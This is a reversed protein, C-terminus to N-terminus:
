VSVRGMVSDQEIRRMPRRFHIWYGLADTAHTHAPNSKDLNKGTKDWRAAGIDGKLLECEEDDVVLHIRGSLDLIAVCVANIRDVVPPNSDRIRLRFKVQPMTAALAQSLEDYLSAATGAWESRATADGYIWLEPWKWGGSAAVWDRFVNVMRRVSMRPEHFVRKVYFLDQTEDYQGVMSHMGPNINFDMTWELPKHPNLTVKGVNRRTFLSAYALTGGLSVAGGDLYQAVLDATLIQKQQNYFAVATPNDKTRAKYVAHGKKGSHADEFVRTKDGENTYTYVIQKIRARPARVRGQLQLFPDNKPNARDEKWRAPEDGWAYGVMWGTIRDPREATRALVSCGLQPLVYANRKNSWRYKIGFQECAAEFEPFMFDAMTTLTPGIMASNVRTRNGDADLANYITGALLKRAGIWTKGSFWGGELFLYPNQWDLWFDTQGGPRTKFSLSEVGM